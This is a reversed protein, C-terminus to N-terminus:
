TNTLKNVLQEKELLEPLARGVPNMMKLKMLRNLIKLLQRDVEVAMIVSKSKHQFVVEM